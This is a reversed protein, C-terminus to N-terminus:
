YLLIESSAGNGRVIGAGWGWSQTKHCNRDGAQSSFHEWQKSLTVTQPMILVAINNFSKTRVRQGKEVHEEYSETVSGWTADACWPPKPSFQLSRLRNQTNHSLFSFKDTNLSDTWTYFLSNAPGAHLHVESWSVRWLRSHQLSHKTGQAIQAAATPSIPLLKSGARGTHRCFQACM